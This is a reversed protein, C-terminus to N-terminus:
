KKQSARILAEVTSAPAKFVTGHKHGAPFAANSTVDTFHIFDKTTSAGYIHRRYLDYYIYYTDGVKTVSPGEAFIGTFPRSLPLTYPGEPRRSFAVRLNSNAKRNDKAVLVYDGEGRKVIVGDICSYGADYLLRPESFAVFDRTTVYYMRHYDGHENRRGTSTKDDVQATFVIMYEGKTDDYFLEPAWVSYTHRISDMVPIRRQPTWHILDTSSSYGIGTDGKWAITWVLHYTGDEGRWVSPDRMISDGLEPALWTGPISDWHLGDRSYIFRLGEDAPEHFSSSVYYEGEDASTTATQAAAPLFSVCLCAGLLLTRLRKM